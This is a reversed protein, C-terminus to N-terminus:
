SASDVMQALKRGLNVSESISRDEPYYFSTDAIYLGKVGPSIPPLRSLFEPECIPQAYRYRGASIKVIDDDGLEPKIMHLYRRVKEIFFEDGRQYDEHEGPIYFPAYVIHGGLPNLNSYEIVGPIDIDPDSINLWFNPSFQERLRVLVCVVAINNVGRYKDLVEQPLSPVMPAVYPMPITSVVQDFAYEGADTRLTSVAGGSQKVERVAESLRIVGGLETVAAAIADLFTDSGGELYGMEEQFINKRSTGVRKLRSWIWAASLNPTYHYFKLEFLPRWLVDYARQGVWKKLWTVADVGDLKRWNSRRTSTFALLGYRIKSVLDLGPFKLLAIPEGWERIGGGHYYGMRTQQWRLANEIGLERLIAFLPEDAKCIFHYYREIKIGDFVFSATMGGLQKDAEFLEVAHGKRLLDYAVALGM